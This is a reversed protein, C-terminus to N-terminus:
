HRLVGHSYEFGQCYCVNPSFSALVLGESSRADALGEALQIRM